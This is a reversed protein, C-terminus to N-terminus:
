VGKRMSSACLIRELGNMEARTAPMNFSFQHLIDKASGEGGTQPEDTGRSEIFM